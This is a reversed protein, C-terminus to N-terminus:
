LIAIPSGLNHPDSAGEYIGGWLRRPGNCINNKSLAHNGEKMEEKLIESLSDVSIDM